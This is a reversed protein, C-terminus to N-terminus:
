PITSGDRVPRRALLWAEGDAEREAIVHLGDFALRLEGAKARFRGPAAGVESLASIALLGGDILRAVIPRDLRRDRFRNCIVVNVRHGAPLGDDLDVQEFRCHSAVGCREALERAQTIAVASVDYGRVELGRQALWVAAGGSGCALDLARGADPFKETYPQFAKPLAVDDTSGVNRDAYLRDWHVRDEDSM